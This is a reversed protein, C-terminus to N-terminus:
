VLTNNAMSVSDIFIFRFPSLGPSSHSGYKGQILKQVNNVQVIMSTTNMDVRSNISWGHTCQKFPLRSGM